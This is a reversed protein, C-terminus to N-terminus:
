FYRFRSVADRCLVTFSYATGPALKTTNERDAYNVTFTGSTVNSIFPNGRNLWSTSQPSTMALYISCKRDATFEFTLSNITRSKLSMSTVHAYRPITPITVSTSDEKTGGSPTTPFSYSAGVTRDSANWVTIYKDCVYTTSNQPLTYSEYFVNGDIVFTGTQPNNNYSSGTTTCWVVYHVVASNNTGETSTVTLEQGATVAM